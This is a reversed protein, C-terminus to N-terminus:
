IKEELQREFEAAALLYFIGSLIDGTLVGLTNLNSLSAINPTILAAGFWGVSFNASVNALARLWYRPLRM